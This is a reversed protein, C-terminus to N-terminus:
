EGVASEGTVAYRWRSEWAGFSYSTEVGRRATDGLDRRESAGADLVGTVADVWEGSAPAAGGLAALVGANAGVPSGVVPLGAAGYQLLKYGCKGRTFETDHLPMIGVDADALIQASTGPDWPVRDM